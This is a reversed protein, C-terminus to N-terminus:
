GGFRSLIPHHLMPKYSALGAFRRERILIRGENIIRRVRLPLARLPLAYELTWLAVLGVFVVSDIEFDPIQRILGVPIARGIRRM